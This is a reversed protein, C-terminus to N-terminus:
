VRKVHVTIWLLGEKWFMKEPNKKKWIMSCTLAMIIKARRDAIARDRKEEATLREGSESEQDEDSAGSQGEEDEDSERSQGEEDQTPQVQGRRAHSRAAGTAAPSPATVTRWHRPPPVPATGPEVNGRNRAQQGRQVPLMQGPDAGAEETQNYDSSANDENEYKNKTHASSPLARGRGDAM